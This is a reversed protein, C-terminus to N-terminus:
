DNEMYINNAHWWKKFAYWLPLVSLAYYLDILRRLVWFHPGGFILKGGSSKYITYRGTVPILVGKIHLKYPTLSKKNITATINKALVAGQAFAVQALWPASRQTIPDMFAAMDGAAFVDKFKTARLYSDVEISGNENCPLGQRLLLPHPKVGGAWILMDCPISHRRGKMPKITVKGAEAKVIRTKMKVQIGADKLRQEIKRSFDKGVGILEDSGQLLTVHVRSKPYRYKKCIKRLAAPLQGAFEVGTAGGGGVVIHVEKKVKKKWLVQFYQDLHSHVVVAQKVTKLPYSFQKLGPINYHNVVSGLALVMIDYKLKGGEKLTITKSKPHLGIVKDQLFTISKKGIIKEIPLAVTDSLKTLCAETINDNFSTAIEYLDPTYMHVDRKDILIIEHNKLNSKQKALNLAARVGAFGAGLIIIRKKKM